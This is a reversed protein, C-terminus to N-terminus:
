DGCAGIIWHTASTLSLKWVLCAFYCSNVHGDTVRLVSLESNPSVKVLKFFKSCMDHAGADDKVPSLAFTLSLTYHLTFKLTSILEPTMRSLQCCPPWLCSEYYVFPVINQSARWDGCAGIIRLAVVGEYLNFYLFKDVQCSRRFFVFVMKNALRSEQRKCCTGMRRLPYSSHGMWCPM